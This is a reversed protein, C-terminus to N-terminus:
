ALAGGCSSGAGATCGFCHAGVAIADGQWDATAGLEFITRRSGPVAIELMQNFDCDYLQGTWGVSILQRCMLGDLTAPNFAELLLQRYSAVRGQRRLDALFRAIPMNTITLLQDFVVGHVNSLQDKYAAELGAQTPPLHTGVPNYVLDLKLAGGAGYGLANLMRLGAISREFVRHGRQKDVNDQLYCPLSAVVHVQHTALFEALGGQEPESLITLNCRDMVDRGLERGAQVLRRFHPNLEPAGGTIDLLTLEPNAALAGIVADVTNSAMMETRSPSADVHCHACAQNCRRGMNVQLWV